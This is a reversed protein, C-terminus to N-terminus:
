SYFNNLVLISPVHVNFQYPHLPPWSMNLFLDWIDSDSLFSLFIHTRVVIEVSIIIIFSIYLSNWNIHGVNGEILLAYLPKTAFVRWLSSTFLRVETANAWWHVPKGLPRNDDPKGVLIKYTNRM